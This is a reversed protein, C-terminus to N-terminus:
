QDWGQQPGPIDNDALGAGVFTVENGGAGHAGCPAEFAGTRRGPLAPLFPNSKVLYILGIIVDLCFVELRTTM